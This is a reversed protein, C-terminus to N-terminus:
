LQTFKVFTSPLSARLPNNGLLRVSFVAVESRQPSWCSETKVEQLQLKNNFRILVRPVLPAAAAETM